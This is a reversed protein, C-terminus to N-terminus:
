FQYERLYDAMLDFRCIFHSAKLLVADGPAFHPLLADRAEDRSAFWRVDACGAEKAAPVMWKKSREGVALLMEIGLEGVTRGVDRHGSEEASGLETMDGLLAIRKGGRHQALIAVDARVSRPNANYSDNIMLRGGPLREVRLRNDAPRYAAVGRTIEDKTLGLREAVAVALAALSAMHVGPSPIELAYREKATVITCRVGELGLDELAEVRVGCGASLGCLVKECGLELATLLEDDGNIVALGGPRLNEFIEAKARCIAERSEFYALHVDDVNTIVAIDPRVAEGLWRIQGASDMGTEVVAAQHEPLLSLLTLPAGIDGNLNGPTKLTNYRQGLVGALLEKFTTKGMSGTIQVIPLDFQGRYWGALDRLARRTDEVLIYAKDPRLQEPLRACFCGAAGKDLAMGIYDHGDFREGTVPVFWAGPAISRSDTSLESIAVDEPGCLTGHVADRMRATTMPIM